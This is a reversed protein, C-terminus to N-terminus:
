VLIGYYIIYDAGSRQRGAAPPHVCGMNARWTTRRIGGFDEWGLGNSERWCYAGMVGKSAVCISRGTPTAFLPSVGFRFGKSAVSVFFV